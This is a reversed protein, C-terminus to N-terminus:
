AARNHTITDATAPATDSARLFPSLTEPTDADLAPEFLRSCGRGDRKARYLANDAKALWVDISLPSPAEFVAAGISVSVDLVKTGYLVPMMLTREVLHVVAAADEASALSRTVVAFEDGGLRSFITLRGDLARLRDAIARLVADGAAHGLTDNISKFHDCDILMVAFTNPKQEPSALLKSFVSMFWGRNALGTAADHRSAYLAAQESEALRRTLRRVTLAAFLTMALILGLSLAIAPLAALLIAYGPSAFEWALHTVINGRSDRVPVANAGPATVQKGSIVNLEDIHSLTELKDMVTPTMVQVGILLTPDTPTELSEDDPTFPSVTILAPDGDLKVIDNVYLGDTMAGELRPDFDGMARAEKYLRRAREMPAAAASLLGAVREPPPAADFESSFTAKGSPDVIVIQQPGSPSLAQKGFTKQIWETRKELVVNHYAADWNTQSILESAHLEGLLKIGREIAARERELANENIEKVVLIADKGLLAVAILAPLGIALGIWRALKVGSSEHGSVM